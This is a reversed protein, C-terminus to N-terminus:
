YFPMLNPFLAPFDTSGLPSSPAGGISLETAGSLWSAGSAMISISFVGLEVGICSTGGGGSLYTKGTIKWMM